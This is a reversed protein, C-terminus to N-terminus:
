KVIFIIDTLVNFPNSKNKFSFTLKLEEVNKNKFANLYSNISPKLLDINRKLKWSDTFNNTDALVLFLRNEAGFRM